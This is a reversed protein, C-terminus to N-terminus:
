PIMVTAWSEWNSAPDYEYGDKAVGSLVLWYRGPWSGFMIPFALGNASTNRTQAIETGGPLHWSVDVLAGPM